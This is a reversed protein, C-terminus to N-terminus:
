RRRNTSRIAAITEKVAMDWAEACTECLLVSAFGGPRRERETTGIRGCEKNECDEEMPESPMSIM